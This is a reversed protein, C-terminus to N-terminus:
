KLEEQRPTYQVEDVYEADAQLEEETIYAEDTLCIGHMGGIVLAGRDEPKVKLYGLIYEIARQKDGYYASPLCRLQDLADLTGLARPSLHRYQYPQQRNLLMGNADLIAQNRAIAEDLEREFEEPNNM